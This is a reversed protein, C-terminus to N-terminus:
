GNIGGATAQIEVVLQGCIRSAANRSVAPFTGSERALFDELRGLMILARARDGERLRERCVSAVLWSARVLKLTPDASAHDEARDLADAYAALDLSQTIM